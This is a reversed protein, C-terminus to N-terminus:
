NTAIMEDIKAHTLSTEMHQFADSSGIATQECEVSNVAAADGLWRVALGRYLPSRKPQYHDNRCRHWAGTFAIRRKLVAM